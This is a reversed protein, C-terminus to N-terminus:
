PILAAIREPDQMPMFHTLDDIYIDDARAFAGALDPWTPSNTFDMRSEKPRSPARIIRVPCQLARIAPYPNTLQFGAYVSAELLPPCALELVDDPGSPLLGHQCYDMLVDRNWLNYPKRDEFHDFMEQASTWANRRRAIPNASVDLNEISPPNLYTSEEVITPDILVLRDFREALAAAAQVLVHGGMSHGIGIIDHLDLDRILRIIDRAQLSWDSLSAPKGSRGHGRQDVAIIHYDAVLHGVLQDWCRAHFGTAHLFVMTPKAPDGQEFYCIDTDKSVYQHRHPEV